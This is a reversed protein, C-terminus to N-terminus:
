FPMDHDYMVGSCSLLFTIEDTCLISDEVAADQETLYAVRYVDSMRPNSWYPCNRWVSLLRVLAIDICGGKARRGKRSRLM